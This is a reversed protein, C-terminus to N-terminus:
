KASRTKAVPMPSNEHSEGRGIGPKTPSSIAARAKVAVKKPQPLASKPIRVELLGNEVEAEIKDIDVGDPLQFRRVFSGYGRELLHYRGEDKWQETREGQVTLVGNQTTVEVDGSESGSIEIAFTLEQDTERIDAAPTWENRGGQARGLADEFFRVIDRRFGLAPTTTTPAYLM